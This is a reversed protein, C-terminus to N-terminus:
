VNGRKYKITIKNWLARPHWFSHINFRWWFFLAILLLVVAHMPWWAM